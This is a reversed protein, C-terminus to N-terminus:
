QKTLICTNFSVISLLAVIKPLKELASMRIVHHNDDGNTCPTSKDYQSSSSAFIQEFSTVSANRAYGVYLFRVVTFYM